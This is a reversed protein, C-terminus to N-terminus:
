QKGSTKAKHDRCHMKVDVGRSTLEAVHGETPRMDRSYGAVCTSFAAFLFTGIFINEYPNHM